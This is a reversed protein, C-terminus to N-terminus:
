QQEFLEEASRVIVARRLWRELTQLDVCTRVRDRLAASVELGRVDLVELVAAALAQLRGEDRGERRGENRGRKYSPGQFEYGEPLMEFAKERRM